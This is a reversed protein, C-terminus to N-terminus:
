KIESQQNGISSQQDIIISKGIQMNAMQKNESKSIASESIVLQQHSGRCLVCPTFV